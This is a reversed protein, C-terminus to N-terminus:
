GRWKIVGFGKEVNGEPVGFAVGLRGRAGRVGRLGMMLLRNGHDNIRAKQELHLIQWGRPKWKCGSAEFEDFSTLPKRNM